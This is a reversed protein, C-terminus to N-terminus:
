TAPPASPSTIRSMSRGALGLDILNKIGAATDVVQVVDLEPNGVGTLKGVQGIALIAQAHHLERRGLRRSVGAEAWPRRGPQDGAELQGDAPVRAMELPSSRSRATSSDPLWIPTKPRTPALGNFASSCRLIYRRLPRRQVTLSSGM